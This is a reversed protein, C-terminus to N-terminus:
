PYVCNTSRMMFRSCAKGLWWRRKISRWFCCGGNRIKILSISICCRTPCCFCWVPISRPTRLCMWIIFMISRSLVVVLVGTLIILSSFVFFKFESIDFWSSSSFPKYINIFVLAFFATWLILQVIHQKDYIYTPINKDWLGM